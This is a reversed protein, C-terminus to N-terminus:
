ALTVESAAQAGANTMEAIARESDGPQVDIGTIADTLVRV